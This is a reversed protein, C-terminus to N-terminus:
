CDEKVSSVFDIIRTKLAEIVDFVIAFVKENICGVYFTNCFMNVFNLIETICQAM